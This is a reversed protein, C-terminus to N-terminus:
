KKLISDIAAVLEEPNQSGVLLKKGTKFVLQLGLKGSVNYAKGNKFSGRIGWGGYEAIPSYQRAYYKDFDEFAFRKFGLHLPFLRVYLGDSRIETQLKAKWFLIMVAASVAIVMVLAFTPILKKGQYHLLLQVGTMVLVLLLSDAILFWRLFKNFKQEQRCIIDNEM